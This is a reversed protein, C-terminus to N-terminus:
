IRRKTIYPECVLQNIDKYANYACVAMAILGLLVFGAVPSSEAVERLHKENQKFQQEAMYSSIVEHLHDYAKDDLPSESSHRFAYADRLISDSGPYAAVNFEEAKMPFYSLPSEDVLMKAYEPIVTREFEAADVCGAAHHAFFREVTVDFRREVLPQLVRPGKCLIHAAADAHLVWLMPVSVLLACLWLCQQHEAAWRKNWLWGWGWLLLAGVLVAGVWWLLAAFSWFGFLVFFLDSM